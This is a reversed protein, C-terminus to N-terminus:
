GFARTCSGSALVDALAIDQCRIYMAALTALRGLTQGKADIIYWKKNVAAADASTPYYTRNLLDGKFLPVPVAPTSVPAPPAAAAAACFL